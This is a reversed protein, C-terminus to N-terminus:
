AIRRAGPGPLATVERPADLTHGANCALQLHVPEGCDRHTLVVPPGEPGAAYRDGWQMLAVMVLYLDRGKGTLRYEHRSVSAPAIM